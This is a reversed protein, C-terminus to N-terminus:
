FHYKDYRVTINGHSDGTITSYNDRENAKICDPTTILLWVIM